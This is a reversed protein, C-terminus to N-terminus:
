LKQQKSNLWSKLNAFSKLIQSADDKWFLRIDQIKASATYSINNSNNAKPKTTQAFLGVVSFTFVILLIRM